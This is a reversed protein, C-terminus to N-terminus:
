INNVCKQFIVLIRYDFDFISNGHSYNEKLISKPNTIILNASPQSINTGKEWCKCFDSWVVLRNKSSVYCNRSELKLWLKQSFNDGINTFIMKNWFWWISSVYFPPMKHTTKTQLYSEEWYKSVFVSIGVKQNLYFNVLTLCLFNHCRCFKFFSICTQRRWIKDAAM